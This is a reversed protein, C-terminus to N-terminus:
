GKIQNDTGFYIPRPTWEPDMVRIAYVSAVGLPNWLWVPTPDSFSWASYLIM